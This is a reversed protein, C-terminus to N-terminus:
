NKIVKVTQTGSASAIKAFYLGQPLNSADVAVENTSANKTIITKGLVDVIQVSTIAESSSVFNWNGQSPNPYVKFINKAVGDIGLDVNVFNYEGTLRNFTITYNGATVPINAGDLVGTGVPFDTAGWNVDWKHNQRFKLEGDLLTKDVITYTIGDDTGLDADDANWGNVASGHIGIYVYNFSYDGITRNFYVNYRNGIVQINAGGQTGTGTPFAASGWNVDWANDQRFKAEGTVFDHGDLNYNTGDSTFMDVDAGGFGTDIAADGIMGVSPFAEGGFTYALTLRNFTVTYTGAAVPINVGNLTATGTPFAIDGWNLDWADDQRFKAEGDTFVFDTLTYVIGDTTSLNTDPGDFGDNNVATGLIGISPFEGITSFSYEGTSRNFMVNFTGALVPINQGGLNGTGSPFDASGWNLAWADDQRFKAEGAIFTHNSLTYIVGDTTTLNVDPGDFGNANVATGLIGVTPFTPTGVFSYALTTRNFTVTYTGSTVPINIGELTSTGNPFDPGGWNMTWADAERFKAFGESFTYNELTYVIGDTTTLDVDPGDFGNESVATGLIGISPFVVPETFAYAGTIRNFTVTYTGATVIMNAGNQTGIGSPFDASGWNVAWDDNQRFKAEGDTFTHNYLTYTIGDTSTLNTDPDSFGGASVATGIIGVSPFTFSYEGTQINFSVSYTGASVPINPGNLTATGNPFTDDGWNSTWADNLRFKAEGDTFVYNSLTYTIGDFTVMDVDPGDFGGANVATGIIGISPFEVVNSFSYVGTTSNFAVDYTGAVTLLNAGNLTGTGNPFATSGWNIAWANNARFKVGGGTGANSVVLDSLTWNEGDTTEMQHTDVPGPNGPEGPWGGAAEGVIAVSNVQANITFLSSFLLILLLLKTKM